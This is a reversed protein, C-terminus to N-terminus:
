LQRHFGGVFNRPVTLANRRVPTQNVSEERYILSLLSLVTGNSWPYLFVM